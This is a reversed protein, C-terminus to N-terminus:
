GPTKKCGCSERVILSVPLVTRLSSGKLEGTIRQLLLRASIRGLEAAPQAVATIPPTLLAYFDVDDFGVLTVDKGIVVNLERLAEIVWTTSINNATFIAQPRIRSGFLEALKAKASAQSSLHVEGPCPLKARRVSERYGAIREKITFLHANAAACIIWKQGHQILHEVAMRAGARNEVGVTDTTAVEMPRDITVVPLSGAALKKLYKQRSDAPILLIGDVPHHTMTEVQAAEIAPDEDSVALWVLYDTKRATEQVAHSIVSFFPDAIDPVILGISRSLQGTLMRAAQNPRYNLQRIAARVKKATEESVYPHGNITRSVTM